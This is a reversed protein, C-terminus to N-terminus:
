QVVGALPAIRTAMENGNARRAQVSEYAVQTRAVFIASQTESPVRRVLPKALRATMPEIGIQPEQKM